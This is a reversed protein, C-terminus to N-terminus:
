SLKAAIRRYSLFRYSLAGPGSSVQAPSAASEEFEDINFAPFCADATFRHDILTLELRDAFPLALAYLQAGGIIWLTRAQTPLEAGVIIPDVLAPNLADFSSIREVNPASFAENRSLVLNRRKPLPRGISDYTKRGMLVSQGLTLAKFRRLDEPIHWPMAGQYGIGRAVDHAAILAIEIGVAKLAVLGASM